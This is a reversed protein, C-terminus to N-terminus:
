VIFPIIVVLLKVRVEILASAPFFIAIFAWSHLTSVFFIAFISILFEVELLFIKLDVILIGDLYM